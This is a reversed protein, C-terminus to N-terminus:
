YSGGSGGSGGQQTGPNQWDEIKWGVRDLTRQLAPDAEVDAREGREAERAQREAAITRELRANLDLTREFAQGLRGFGEDFELLLDAEPRLYPASPNSQLLALLENPSDVNVVMAGGGVAFLYSVEIKGENRLAGEWDRAMRTIAPVAEPSPTPGTYMDYRVLFKM